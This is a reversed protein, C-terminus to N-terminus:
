DKRNTDSVYMKLARTLTQVMREATGNAKPRYAMTARQKQVAIRDFTQFFNSMLGPEQDHRIAVSTGLIRFVCELYGHAITQATRFSSAKDIMYRYFLDM